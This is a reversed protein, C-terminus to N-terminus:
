IIAVALHPILGADRKIEIDAKHRAFVSIVRAIFSLEAEGRAVGRDLHQRSISASIGSLELPIGPGHKRWGQM